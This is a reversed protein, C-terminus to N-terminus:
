CIDRSQNTIWQHNLCMERGRERVGYPHQGERGVETRVCLALNLLSLALSPHLASLVGVGLQLEAGQLLGEQGGANAADGLETLTPFTPHTPYAYPTTHTNTHTM